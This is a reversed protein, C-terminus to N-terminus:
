EAKREVLSSARAPLLQWEAEEVPMEPEFEEEQTYRNVGVMVQKGSAVAEHVSVRARRVADQMTGAAYAAWWGGNQELAEWQKKVEGCLQEIVNEILYAGALPDVVKDLYSEDRLISSINRAMRLDFNSAEAKAVTHPLVELANAGGLLAAMAETTNRLMNTYVDRRTKTWPSTSVYQQVEESAVTVDALALLSQFLIRQARVKAIEPFYHAGASGRLFVQRALPELAHGGEEAQLLLDQFGALAYLTEQVADAGSAHYAQFDVCAGYFHPYPASLEALALFTQFADSRNQQVRLAAAVPDYLLGGQLQEASGEAQQAYALFGRLLAVPDGEPALYVSIYPLGIGAFLASFDVEAGLKLHLGDVGQQLQDLLRKNAAVEEGPQVRQQAVTTWHRPSYGLATLDQQSRYRFAKAWHANEIDEATYAPAIELGERTQSVLTEQFPKGRLDKNIQAIWDAKQLPPFAEFLNHKM